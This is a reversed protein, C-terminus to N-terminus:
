VLFLLMGLTQWMKEFASSCLPSAASAFHVAIIFNEISSLVNLTEIKEVQAQM